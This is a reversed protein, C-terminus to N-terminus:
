FEVINTDKFAWDAEEENKEGCIAGETWIWKITAKYV